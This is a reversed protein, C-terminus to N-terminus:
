FISIVNLQPFFPFFSDKGMDKAEKEYRRLVNEPIIGLEVLLTGVLSSKGHDIHGIFVVNIREKVIVVQGKMIYVNKKRIFRNWM